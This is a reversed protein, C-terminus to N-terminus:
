LIGFHDTGRNTFCLKEAQHTPISFSRYHLVLHHYHLTNKVKLFHPKPLNYTFKECLHMAYTSSMPLPHVHFFYMVGSYTLNPTQPCLGGWHFKKGSSSLNKAKYIYTQHLVDSIRPHLSYICYCKTVKIETLNHSRYRM